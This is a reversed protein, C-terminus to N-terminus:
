MVGIATLLVGLGGKGVVLETVTTLGSIGGTVKFMRGRVM